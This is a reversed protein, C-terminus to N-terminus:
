RRRGANERPVQSQAKGERKEESPNRRAGLHPSGRIQTSSGQM